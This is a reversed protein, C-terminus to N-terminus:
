HPVFTHRVTVQRVQRTSTDYIRIRVELGRLPVPYPPSTELENADDIIGNSDDDIMNNKQDVGYRSDEDIGNFEYHDSWTDYTRTLRQSNDSKYGVKPLVAAFVGPSAGHGLDVYAGEVPPSFSV